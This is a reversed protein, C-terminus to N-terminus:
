WKSYIEMSSIINNMIDSSAECFQARETNFISEICKATIMVALSVVKCKKDM